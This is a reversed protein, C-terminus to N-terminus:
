KWLSSFCESLASEAVHLLEGMYRNVSQSLIRTRSWIRILRKFKISTGMTLGQTLNILKPCCYVSIQSVFNKAGNVVINNFIQFHDLIWSKKQIVDLIFDTRGKWMESLEQFIWGYSKSNDQVCVSLCIFAVSFM